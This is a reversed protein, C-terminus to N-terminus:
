MFEFFKKEVPNLSATYKHDDCSQYGKCVPVARRTLGGRESAAAHTPNRICLYQMAIFM